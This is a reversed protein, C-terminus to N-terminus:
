LELRGHLCSSVYQSERRGQQGRGAAEPFVNGRGHGGLLHQGLGVLGQLSHEVANGGLHHRRVERPVAGAVGVVVVEGVRAQHDHEVGERAFQDEVPLVVVVPEHVPDPVDVGDPFAGVDGGDGPHRQVLVDAGAVVQHADDAVLGVPGGALGDQALREGVPREAVQVEGPHILELGHRVRRDTGGVAGVLVEGALRHGDDHLSHANVLGPVVRAGGHLCDVLLDEGVQVLGLFHKRVLALAVAHERVDGDHVPELRPGPQFPTGGPNGAGKVVGGLVGQPGEGREAARRECLVLPLAGRGPEVVVRGVAVGPHPVDRHVDVM